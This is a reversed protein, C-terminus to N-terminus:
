HQHTTYVTPPASARGSPTQKQTFRVDCVLIETIASSVWTSHKNDFTYAAAGTRKVALWSRYKGQHNKEGARRKSVGKAGDNGPTTVSL